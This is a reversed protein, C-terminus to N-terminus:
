RIVEAAHNVRRPEDTGDPSNAQHFGCRGVFLHMFPHLGGDPPGPRPAHLRWCGCGPHEVRAVSAIHNKALRGDTTSVLPLLYTDGVKPTRSM